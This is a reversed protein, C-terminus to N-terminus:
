HSSASAITGAGPEEAGNLEMLWALADAKNQFVAANQTMAIRSAQMKALSSGTYMAVRKAKGKEQVVQQLASSVVQMQISCETLDALVVHDGLRCGMARVAQYEEAYMQQVEDATLMGVLKLLVMKHKRDVSLIYM